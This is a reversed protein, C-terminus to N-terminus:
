RLGATTALGACTLAVSRSAKGDLSSAYDLIRDRIADAVRAEAQALRDCICEEGCNGCQVPPEDYYDHKCATALFCQPHHDSM